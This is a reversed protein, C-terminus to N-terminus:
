KKKIVWVGMKRSGNREIIGNDRLKQLGREITRSDKGIQESIEPATIEANQTILELIRKETATLKIGVNIGVNIGVSKDALSLTLTTRDPNFQEKIDPKPLKYQEWIMNIGFLGSGAREGIGVLSFMFIVASNRPDSIGGSLAEDKTIRLAGPNSIVIEDKRKEVVIGRRENYDAHILANALAERIAKHMPTDDIRIQHENLRFPVKIDATLRDQIRGYFDYLNGSWDDSSSTVRDSWREGIPNKPERYDLFYNPYEDLIETVNGFM